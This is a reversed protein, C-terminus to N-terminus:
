PTFYDAGGFPPANEIMEQTPQYPVMMPCYTTNLMHGLSARLTLTAEHKCPHDCRSSQIPGVSELPIFSGYHM